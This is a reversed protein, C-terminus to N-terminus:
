VARMTAKSSRTGADGPAELGDGRRPLSSNPSQSPESKPEDPGFLERFDEVFSIAIVVASGALGILFLVTLVRIFFMGLAPM